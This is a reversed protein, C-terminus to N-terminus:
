GIPHRGDANREAILVQEDAAGSEIHDLVRAAIAKQEATTLEERGEAVNLLHNLIEPDTLNFLDTM